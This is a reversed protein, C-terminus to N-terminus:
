IKNLNREIKDIALDIEAPSVNLHPRFRLSQEGCGLIIMGDKFLEDRLLNRQEHTPLDIACMLGRGRANSITEPHKRALEQLKELLYEGVTRANDILNEKEIVEMVLQFRLMDIFNGGFTSNIRSSERFVNDPVEDFKERNALIGCVQTKKGFSIIDPKATFHEFAWMKGTIGIGTQVEDFILLIENDDCLKRLETFFENRFHNDGGEAQIPEIIVCAVKDPNSLIAEEIHLLAMRENKITEELNEETIPFSLKPNLIRPWDFMPFYQYKRPDATNTLSLTYGSRGHFAQRFHICIGAETQLGKAFNKRTKWDFCAKMANEVAMTGGEIFFTYQLEEPIAVREFVELFTAYEESYVDALTPKNIAMKGLWESKEMLYPHNYGISASAFMSFMDLYERGTLKDFLWSGHSKEIDMVFDFGDALVHKGVTEKVKNPHIDIIQQM